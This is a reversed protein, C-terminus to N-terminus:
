TLDLKAENFVNKPSCILEALNTPLLLLPSGEGLTTSSFSLPFLQAPLAMRHGLVCGHLVQVHRTPCPDHCHSSVAVSDQIVSCTQQSSTPM